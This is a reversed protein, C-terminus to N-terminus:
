ACVPRRASVPTTLPSSSTARPRTDRRARRAVELEVPPTPGLGVGQGAAVGAAAATAAHKAAASAAVGSAPQKAARRAAHQLPLSPWPSPWPSRKPRPDVLLRRLRGPHKPGPRQRRRPDPRRSREQGPRPHRRAQRARPRNPSLGLRSPRPPPRAVDLRPPSLHLLTVLELRPRASALWQRAPRPCSPSELCCLRRAVAPVRWLRRKNTGLLRWRVAPAPQGPAVSPHAALWVPGESHRPHAHPHPAEAPMRHRAGLRPRPGASPPTHTGTTSASKGLTLLRRPAAVLRPWAAWLVRLSGVPPATRTSTCVTTWLGATAALCLAAVQQRQCM